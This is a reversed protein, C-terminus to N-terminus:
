ESNPIHQKQLKSPRFFDKSTPTKVSVKQQDPSDAILKRKNERPQKPTQDSKEKVILKNFKIYALNGKTREEKLKEQLNKREERIKKSFDETVYVGESTILKKNKLIQVKKKQTTLQILLPANQSKGLVKTHCIEEESLKINMEKNIIKLIEAEKEWKKEQKMGHFVLNRKKQENTFKELKNELMAIKEESERQKEQMEKLEENVMDLITKTQADTEAKILSAIKELSAVSLDM